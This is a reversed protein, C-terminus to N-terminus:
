FEFNNIAKIIFDIESEKMGSYMPLSLVTDSLKEAIPFDGKTYSFCKFSGQLHMPIPYHINTGIGLDELYKQLENRRNCKIVFLHWIHDNNKIIPLSIKKNNIGKLYKEAIEKRENNWKDLSKLKVNLFASQLEDLRSNLGMFEHHYKFTAGYNGIARAKKAIEIDNTTICGGDGLAGLNKGPYFSFAAADGLAGVRKNELFAGHAQAADEIVKLNHKKAIICIKDMQAPQGYLHVAIIAKTKKTIAKDILDPNLLATEEDIEVFIPTAGAYKVALATAIFTFSPVIVEDGEGIGMAKLIITIADLGNGCGICHKVGCFKAFNDEFNKCHKGQIFWNSESVEKYAQNLEEKLEKHIHEVTAFPIKM